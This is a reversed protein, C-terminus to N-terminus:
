RVPFYGAPSEGQFDPPLLLYKGGKGQDEGAPGVDALPAQWADMISGFLGAGVAAPFDLIVPGDKLNFNFYVYLSSSNPTTLQLKWDAPKSLYAIDGYKAGVGFFGQRMADVSVIPM